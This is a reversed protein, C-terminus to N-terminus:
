VVYCADEKMDDIILKMRRNIKMIRVLGRIGSGFYGVIPDSFSISHVVGNRLAKISSFAKRFQELWEM